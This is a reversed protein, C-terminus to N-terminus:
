DCRVKKYPEPLPQWANVNTTEAFYQKDKVTVTVGFGKGAIYNCVSVRKGDSILYIGDEEPLGNEIDNWGM